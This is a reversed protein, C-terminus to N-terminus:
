FAPIGVGGGTLGLNYITAATATDNPGPVTNIYEAGSFNASNRPNEMRRFNDVRLETSLLDVQALYIDWAKGFDELNNFQQISRNIDGSIRELKGFTLAGPYCQDFADDCRDLIAEIYTEQTASRIANMARELQAVPQPIGAGTGLGLHFYVRERDPPQLHM